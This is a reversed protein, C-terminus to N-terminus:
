KSKSNFGEKVIGGILTGGDEIIIKGADAGSAETGAIIGTSVVGAAITIIEQYPM